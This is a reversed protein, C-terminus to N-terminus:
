PCLYADPQPFIAYAFQARDLMRNVELAANFLLQARAPDDTIRTIVVNSRPRLGAIGQGQVVRLFNVTDLTFTARDEEPTRNPAARLAVEALEQTTMLLRGMDHTSEISGMGFRANAAPAVVSGFHEARPENEAGGRTIIVRSTDTVFIWASHAQVPGVTSRMLYAAVIRRGSMDQYDTTYAPSPPPRTNTM